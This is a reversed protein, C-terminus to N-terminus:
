RPPRTASEKVREASIVDAISGLQQALVSLLDDLAVIGTLHGTSSTVPLRRASHERMRALVDLVDDNEDVTGL